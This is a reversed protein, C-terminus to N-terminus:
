RGDDWCEGPLRLAFSRAARTGGTDSKSDSVPRGGSAGANGPHVHVEDEGDACPLCGSRTCRLM